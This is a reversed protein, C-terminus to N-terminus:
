SIESLKDIKNLRVTCCCFLVTTHLAIFFLKTVGLCIFPEWFRATGRVQIFRSLNLWQLKNNEGLRSTFFMADPCSVTLHIDKKIQIFWTEFGSVDSMAKPLPNQILFSFLSIM